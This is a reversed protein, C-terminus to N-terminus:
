ENIRTTESRMDDLLGHGQVVPEAVVDARRRYVLLAGLAGLVAVAGIGVAVMMARTDDFPSDVSQAALQVSPAAVTLAAQQTFPSAPGRASSGPVMVLADYPRIAGWGSDNSRADPSGRLATAMLRYKWQAPSEASQAQAMLAAAGSAYATAYSSSPSTTNFLCDGGGAAATLVNQGPAGIEVHPGHISDETPRGEGDLATVALAQPYAAPYRPSDVTVDSTNRNGASAVVLVGRADAYEVADRVVKDDAANSMSVNIIDAGHDVAWRIGEALPGAKPGFGAEVADDDTAQYVRVSLLRVDPAVGVVGSEDIQQAAIIGAVATGHGALDTMGHANQGDGVLNVGDAVVGILHENTADIGSDVVAVTVGAGTAVASAQVQQMMTLAPPSQLVFEETGPKCETGGSAADATISSDVSVGASPAASAAAAPEESPMATTQGGLVQEGGPTSGAAQVTLEPGTAFFQMWSDPVPSVDEPEYGLRALIEEDADPIAYSTGREDVLVVRAVPDGDTRGAAVLAGARAPVSVVAADPATTTTALTTGAFGQAEDLVACPVADAAVATLADDPWDSGFGGEPTNGLGALDGPAVQQAAGLRTGTGLLYMQYALPTLPALEGSATVLFQNTTGEPAVVAGVVLGTDPLAGGEGTAIIPELDTGATFLNLWRSDVEAPVDDALGIARLTSSAGAAPVAYRYAGAVVYTLGDSTVVAGTNAPAPQAEGDINLATGGGVPCAAWGSNMLHDATPVDDPAGVIGISARVPIDALASSNVSSVTLAGSPTLLRASTTNIVPYLNADQTLYRSGTDKDLLLANTEWDDPLGPKAVGLIVGVVVVLVALSIGAVVARMPKAPELEKGGPAGATFATLLRRRSFGQAEILDKKSAM